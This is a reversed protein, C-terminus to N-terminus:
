KRRLPFSLGPFHQSRIAQRSPMRVLHHQQLLQLSVAHCLISDVGASHTVTVGPQNIAVDDISTPALGSSWNTGTGWDGGAASVWSVTALAIRDELPELCLGM